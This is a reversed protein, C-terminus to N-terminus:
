RFGLVCEPPLDHAQHSKLLVTAQSRRSSARSSAALVPAHQRVLLASHRDFQTAAEFAVADILNHLGYTWGEMCVGGVGIWKFRGVEVDALAYGETTTTVVLLTGQAVGAFFQTVVELPNMERPNM